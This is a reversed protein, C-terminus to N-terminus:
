NLLHGKSLSRKVFLNQKRVPIGYSEFVLGIKEMEERALPRISNLSYKRALARYKDIGLEHYPLFEVDPAYPLNKLFRATAHINEEDDNYGPILPIRIIMTHRGRSLKEINKLIKDNAVGTLNQHKIPNMQKLDFLILDTHPLLVELEAWEVYGCTEIATHIHNKHCTELLELAFGIQATPEGGTLTVGGGSNDYFVTDKKIEEMLENLIVEKGIISRAGTPCVQACKGCNNCVDRKIHWDKNLAGVPCAKFCEGCRMCKNEFEAIEPLQQQSEPNDCWLCRLPCGKMFVLTRIGPGDHIGYRQIDFVIGRKEDSKKERHKDM